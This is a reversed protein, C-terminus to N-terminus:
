MSRESPSAMPVYTVTLFKARRASVIVTSVELEEEDSDGKARYMIPPTLVLDRDGTEEVGTSLSFLEGSVYSNDELECGVIVTHGDPRHERMAVWWSSYLAVEFGFTRALSPSRAAVVGAVVCAGVLLGLGWWTLLAYEERAYSFGERVLRGVDPTARPFLVRLVGFAVLVAANAIGSTLGVAATERFVSVATNPFRRERVVAYTLGPALLLLFSIIGLLSDPM